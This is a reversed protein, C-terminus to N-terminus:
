KSMVHMTSFTLHAENSSPSPPLGPEGHTDDTELSMIPRPPQPHLLFRMGEPWHKFCLSLSKTEKSGGWYHLFHIENGISSSPFEPKVRPRQQHLWFYVTTVILFIKEGAAGKKTMQSFFLCVFCEWGWVFCFSVFLFLKEQFKKFFQAQKQTASKELMSDLIYPLFFLLSLSSVM